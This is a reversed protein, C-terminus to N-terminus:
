QVLLLIQTERKFSFVSPYYSIWRIATFDWSGPECSRLWSCCGLDRCLVLRACVCTRGWRASVKCSVSIVCGARSLTWWQEWEAVFSAGQGRGGPWSLNKQITEGGQMVLEQNSVWTTNRCTPNYGDWTVPLALLSYRSNEVVWWSPERPLPTQHWALPLSMIIAIIIIQAGYPPLSAYLSQM